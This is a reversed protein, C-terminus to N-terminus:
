HTSTAETGTYAAAVAYGKETISIIATSLQQVTICSDTELEKVNLIVEDWPDHLRSLIENPHIISMSPRIDNKVLEYIVRLVAM